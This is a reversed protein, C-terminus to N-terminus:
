REFDLGCPLLGGDRKVKSVPDRGRSSDVRRTTRCRTMERYERWVPVPSKGARQADTPKMGLEAPFAEENRRKAADFAQIDALMGADEQLDEYLDEPVLDFTRSDETLRDFNRDM